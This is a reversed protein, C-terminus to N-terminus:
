ILKTKSNCVRFRIFFFRLVFFFIERQTLFLLVFFPFVKYNLLNFRHIQHIYCVKKYNLYDGPNLSIFYHYICEIISQTLLPSYHNLTSQLTELMTSPSLKPPHTTDLTLVLHSTYRSHSNCRDIPEAEFSRYPSQQMTMSTSSRLNNVSKM